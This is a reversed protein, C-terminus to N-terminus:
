CYCNGMVDRTKSAKRFPEVWEKHDGRTYFGRWEYPNSFTGEEGPIVLEISKLHAWDAGAEVEASIAADMSKRTRDYEIAPYEEARKYVKNGAKGTIENHGNNRLISCLDSYSIRV